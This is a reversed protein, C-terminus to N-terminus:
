ASEQKAVCWRGTLADPRIEAMGGGGGGVRAIEGLSSKKGYERGKNRNIKPVPLAGM